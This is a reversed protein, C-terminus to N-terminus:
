VAGRRVAGVAAESGPKRMLDRAIRTLGSTGPNGHILDAQWYKQDAAAIAIVVLCIKCACREVVSM